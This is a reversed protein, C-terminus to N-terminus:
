GALRDLNDEVLKLYTDPVSSYDRHELPHLGQHAVEILVGSEFDYKLYGLDFFREQVSSSSDQAKLKLAKVSLDSKSILLWQHHQIPDRENQSPCSIELVCLNTSELFTRCNFRTPTNM